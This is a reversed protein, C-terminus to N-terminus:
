VPKFKTAGTMEFLKEPPVAFIANPAGAAAWIDQYAFLAIDM